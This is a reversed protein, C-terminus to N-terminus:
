MTMWTQQLSTVQSLMGGNKKFFKNKNCVLRTLLVLDKTTAWEQRIAWNQLKLMCSCGNFFHQLSNVMIAEGVIESLPTDVILRQCSTNMQPEAVESPSLV